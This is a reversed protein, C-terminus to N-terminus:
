KKLGSKYSPNMPPYGNTHNYNYAKLTQLVAEPPVYGSPRQQPQKQTKHQQQAQPERYTQQEQPHTKTPQEKRQTNSEPLLAAKEVKEAKKSSLKSGVWKAAGVVAKCTGVVARVPMAIVAATGLVATTAVAAVTSAIKTPMGPYTAAVALGAPGFAGVAAITGVVSIVKRGITTKSTHDISNLSEARKKWIYSIADTTGLDWKAYFPKTIEKSM